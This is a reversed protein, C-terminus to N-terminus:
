GYSNKFSLNFSSYIHYYNSGTAHCGVLTSSQHIDSSSFFFNAAAKQLKFEAM